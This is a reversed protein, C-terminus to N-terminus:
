RRDEAVTKLSFKSFGAQQCQHVVEQVVGAPAESDGRILVTVERLATHGEAQEILRREQELVTQIQRLDFARDGVIIRPLSELPAGADDREYGLRLVLEYEPRVAPPKAIMDRPLKIREDAKTNQFNVVIIFFTLMQFVLGVLPVLEPRSLVPKSELARFKM